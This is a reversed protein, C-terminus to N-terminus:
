KQIRVLKVNKPGKPFDVQHNVLVFETYKKNSNGYNLEFNLFAYLM